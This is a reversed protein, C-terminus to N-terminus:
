YNHNGYRLNAAQGADSTSQSYSGVNDFGATVNGSFVRTPIKDYAEQIAKAHTCMDYYFKNGKKATPVLASLIDMVDLSHCKNRILFQAGIAKTWEFSQGGQKVPVTSLLQALILAISKDCLEESDKDPSM